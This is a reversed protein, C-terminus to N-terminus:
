PRQLRLDRDLRLHSQLVDILAAEQEPYEVQEHRTQEIYSVLILEGLLQEQALTLVTDWDFGQAAAKTYAHQVAIIVTQDEATLMSSRNLYPRIRVAGEHLECDGVELMAVVNVLLQGVTM